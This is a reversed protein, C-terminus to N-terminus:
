EVPYTGYLSANLKEVLALLQEKEETSLAGFLNSFIEQNEDQMEYARARGVETLTILTARKDDPDVTRKVYGELELKSILESISSPNVKMDQALAKQRVGNEYDLLTQLLRGQSHARNRRCHPDEPGHAGHPGHGCPEEHGHEDHPGHGGHHGHGCPESDEYNGHARMEPRHPGHGHHPCDPRDEAPAGHVKVMERRLAHPAHMLAEFLKQDLSKEM